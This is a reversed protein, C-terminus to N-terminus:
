RRARPKVAVPLLVPSLPRATATPPVTGTPETTATVVVVWPTQTPLPTPTATEPEPTNWPTNTPGPVVALVEIDSDLPIGTAPFDGDVSLFWNWPGFTGPPRQYLNVSRGAAVQWYVTVSCRPAETPAPTLTPWDTATPLAVTATPTIPQAPSSNSSTSYNALPIPWRPPDHEQARAPPDCRAAVIAVAIFALFILALRTM